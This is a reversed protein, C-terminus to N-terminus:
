SRRGPTASFLRRHFIGNCLFDTWKDTLKVSILRLRIM